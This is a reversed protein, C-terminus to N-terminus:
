AQVETPIDRWSGRILVFADGAVEKGDPHQFFQQLIKVTRATSYNAHQEVVEQRQVFRLYLTPTM